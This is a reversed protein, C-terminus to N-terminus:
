DEKYWDIARYGTRGDDKKYEEYKVMIASGKRLTSLDVISLQNQTDANCYIDGKVEPINTKAFFSHPKQGNKGRVDAKVWARIYGEKDLKKEDSAALGYMDMIEAATQLPDSNKYGDLDMYIQGEQSNYHRGKSDTADSDDINKMQLYKLYVKISDQNFFSKFVENGVNASELLKENIKKIYGQKLKEISDSEDLIKTNVATFRETDDYEYLHINQMQIQGYGYPKAGGIVLTEKQPDDAKKCQLSMLLLGLEDNYLNTFYIRGCFVPGNDDAPIPTFESDTKKVEEDTVIVKSRKWYFKTGRLTFENDNYSELNKVDRGDENLYMYFATGKSGLLPLSRPKSLEQNGTCLVADQFSVRGKFSKGEAGNIFGFIANEYDVDKESMKEMHIGETVSNRYFIRFFPTPGFGILRKDDIKYFFVKSEGEKPLAYFEKGNDSELKKNQICNRRYDSEYDSADEPSISISAGEKETSCIYHHKKGNMYESNLLVGNSIGDPSFSVEGGYYRFNVPMRYPHYSGNVKKCNEDNYMFAYSPIDIGCDRLAKENVRLYTNDTGEIKKVPQIFYNGDKKYIVGAKVGEITWEMKNRSKDSSSKLTNTYQDRIAKCKSAFKRYLYRQEEVSQPYSFSLIEANNKILGRVTSGPVALRGDLGRYFHSVKETSKEKKGTEDGVFIDTLAKFEYDIYGSHTGETTKNFKPLDDIDHYRAPVKGEYFPIFNYPAFSYNRGKNELRNTSDQM